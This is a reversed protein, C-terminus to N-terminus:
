QSRLCVTDVVISSWEALSAAILLQCQMFSWSVPEDASLLPASVPQVSTSRRLTELREAAERAVAEFTCPMVAIVECPLRRRSLQRALELTAGYGSGGGIGALILLAEVEGLNSFVLDYHMSLDLAALAPDRGSSGYYEHLRVHVDAPRALFTAEDSAYDIRMSIVHGSSAFLPSSQAYLADLVNGGCGGVAVICRRRSNASAALTKTCFM